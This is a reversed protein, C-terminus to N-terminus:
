QHDLNAYNADPNQPYSNEYSFADFAKRDEDSIAARDDALWSVNVLM